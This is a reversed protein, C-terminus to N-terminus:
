TQFNHDDPGTLDSKVNGTMEGMFVLVHHHNVLVGIGQSPHGFIDINLHDESGAAAWHHERFGTNLRGVDKQRHCVLILGVQHGAQHGAYERGGCFLQGANAARVIVVIVLVELVV